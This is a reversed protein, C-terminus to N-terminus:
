FFTYMGWIASREFHFLESIQYLRLVHVDLEEKCFESIAGILEPFELYSLLAAGLSTSPVFPNLEFKVSSIFSRTRDIYVSESSSLDSGENSSPGDGSGFSRVSKDRKNLRTSWHSSKDSYTENGEKQTWYERLALFTDARPNSATDVLHASTKSKRQFFNKFRNPTGKPKTPTDGGTEKEMWFERATQYSNPETPNSSSIRLPSLLPFLKTRQRHSSDYHDSIEKSKPRFFTNRWPSSDASNIELSSIKTCKTLESPTGNASNSTEMDEFHVQANPRSVLPPSALSFCLSQPPPQLIQDSTPNTKQPSLSFSTLSTYISRPTRPARPTRPTQQSPQPQPTSSGEPHRSYMMNSDTVRSIHSPPTSFHPTHHTQTPLDPPCLPAISPFTVSETIQSFQPVDNSTTMTSLRSFALKLFAKGSDPTSEVRGSRMSHRSIQTTDTTIENKRSLAAFISSSRFPLGRPSKPSTKINVDEGTTFRNREVDLTEDWNENSPLQAMGELIFDSINEIPPSTYNCGSSSSSSLLNSVSLSSSQTPSTRPSLPNSFFPSSPIQSKQQFEPALLSNSHLKIEVLPLHLSPIRSESAKPSTHLPISQFDTV